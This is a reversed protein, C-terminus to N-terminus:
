FKKGSAEIEAVLQRKLFDNDINRWIHRLSAVYRDTREALLQRARQEVLQRKEDRVDPPLIDYTVDLPEDKWCFKAFQCYVCDSKKLTVPIDPLWGEEIAMQSLVIRELTGLLREESLDLEFARIMVNGQPDAVNRSIYILNARKYGAVAAYTMLQAEHVPKPKTPLNGCSKLEGIAIKDDQDFYVLDIKGAVKPTMPPIYLNTFFLRNKRTLGEVVAKEIGSGIAMYLQSAPTVQARSEYAKSNLFNQRPCYSAGAGYLHPRGVLDYSDHMSDVIFNETTSSNPKKGINISRTM